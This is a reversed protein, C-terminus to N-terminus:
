AQRPLIREREREREDEVPQTSSYGHSFPACNTADSTAVDREAKPPMYYRAYFM